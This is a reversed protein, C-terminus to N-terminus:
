RKFLFIFFAAAVSTVVSYTFPLDKKHSANYNAVYSNAILAVAVLFLPIVNRYLRRIYGFRVRLPIELEVGYLDTGNAAAPSPETRITLQQWDGARRSPTIAVVHTDYNATLASREPAFDLNPASSSPVLVLDAPLGIHTGMLSPIRHVITLEQTAAEPLVAGYLPGAGWSKHLKRV